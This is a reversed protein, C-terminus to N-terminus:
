AESEAPGQPLQTARPGTQPPSRAPGATCGTVLRLTEERDPSWADEGHHAVSGWHWAPARGALRARASGSPLGSGGPGRRAWRVTVKRKKRETAKQFPFLVKM